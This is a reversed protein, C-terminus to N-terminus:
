KQQRKDDPKSEDADASRSIARLEQLKKLAEKLLALENYRTRKIPSRVPFHPEM